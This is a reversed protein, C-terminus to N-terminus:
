FLSPDSTDISGIVEALEGTERGNITAWEDGQGYGVQLTDIRADPWRSVVAQRIADLYADEDLCDGNDFQLRTPCISISITANNMTKNSM